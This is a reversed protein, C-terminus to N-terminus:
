SATPNLRFALADDARVCDVAIFAADEVEITLKEFPTCWRISASKM